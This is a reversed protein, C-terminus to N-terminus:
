SEGIAAKARQIQTELWGVEDFTRGETREILRELAAIEARRAAPNKPDAALAIEVFHLAEVPEDAALRAQARAALADPGGALGALEPWITRAPVGYLETTSEHRFWGTYEEFVARVYWSVPGRGPAMALHAPLKIERMLTWLDKNAAMGKVTEDHIHRIAELLKTMDARIREAGRIPEDHGTVLLEPELDILRQLERMFNPVSRDRDGRLTYFHPLAGYLAGMWNGTFIVKEKPLWVMLSDLTEGSPASLLEFRRGGVEFVHHDQFLTLPEPLDRLDRAVHATQGPPTAPRLAHLVAQGRPAFFAGLAAREACLRPFEAQAFMEVGPDAFHTWGGIHDFHDQTFVVKAVKLPRGLLAEYRARHGTEGPTGTNIVVDGADSTILYSNSCGKSMLLYDNIREAPAAPNWEIAKVLHHDASKHM